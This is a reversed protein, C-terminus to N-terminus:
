TAVLTDGVRITATGEVAMYAGFMVGGAYGNPRHRYSKLTALPETSREGTEQDTCIVACRECHTARVLRWGEGALTSVADEAFAALGEIVVNPRFRSMPVAADLRTNLDALSSENTVLIPAVDVFRSQKAGDIIAFDELPVARRFPHKLAAVRVDTGAVASVHAALEDGQDVVAIRNGYYGILSEVGDATVAHILESGSGAFAITGADIRRAAVKALEPLRAQNTFRGEKLIMLQRDGDVGTPTILASEVSVGRCSKVPYSYLGTVTCARASRDARTSV